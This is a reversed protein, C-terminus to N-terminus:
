YLVNAPFLVFECRFHIPGICLVATEWLYSKLHQVNSFEVQFYDNVIFRLLHRSILQRNELGLNTELPFNRCLAKYVYCNREGPLLVFKSVEASARM